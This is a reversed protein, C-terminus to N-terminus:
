EEKKRRSFIDKEIDEEDKFINNFPDYDPALEVAYPLTKSLDIFLDNNFKYNDPYSIRILQIITRKDKFFNEANPYIKNIDYIAINASTTARTSAPYEPFGEYEEFPTQSPFCVTWPTILILDVEGQNKFTNTTKLPYYIKRNKFRYMIPEILHINESVKVLDFVFYTINREVYDEIIKEIEPYEKKYSMGNKQFFDNVWERFQFRDNIKIITIDHAGLREHFRMEVGQSSLGGKSMELLQLKYKKILESATEFVKPFALDVQPQSPFPIFRVIITEKDAVLDTSLILIEEDGNHFIIAKQSNENIVGDTAHIAGMDAYIKLAITSFLLILFKKLMFIGGQTM